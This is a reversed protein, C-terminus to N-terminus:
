CLQFRKEEIIMKAEELVDQKGTDIVYKEDYNHKKFQNLLVICREKM